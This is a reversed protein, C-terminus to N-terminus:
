FFKENSNKFSDKVRKLSELSFALRNDKIHHYKKSINADEINFVGTDKPMEISQRTKLYYDIFDCADADELSCVNRSRRAAQLVETFANVQLNRIRQPKMENTTRSRILM